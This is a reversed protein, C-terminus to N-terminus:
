ESENILNLFQKASKEWTYQQATQLANIGKEKVEEQHEYCYRMIKQLHELKPKAWENGEYMIDHKVEILESDILWGNDNNVYDTQGGFNTTIVPLGCAMAELCPLNFADGMTPSIFVDGKNYLNPLSNYDVNDIIFEVNKTIEPTLGLKILENTLNWGLPCYITNIKLILKVNNDHQFEKCFALLLWQVGGRDNIGYAWGKNAIFTFNEHTIATSPKFLTTNVGHPIIHIKPNTGITSEIAQKTHHSPAIIGTVDKRNLIEKWYTPISTSEWVCWGYFYKSRNSLALSWFPPLNIMVSTVNQEFPPTTLMNMEATSCWREFNPPKICELYIQPNLKYLANVFQRSHSAYGTQSFIDGFFNIETM